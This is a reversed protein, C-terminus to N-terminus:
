KPSNIEKNKYTNKSNIKKWQTHDTVNPSNLNLFNMVKVKGDSQDMKKLSLAIISLSSVM